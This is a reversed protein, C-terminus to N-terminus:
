NICSFLLILNRFFFFSKKLFLHERVLFFFFYIVIILSVINDKDELKILSFFFILRSLYPLLNINKCKLIGIKSLMLFRLSYKYTFFLDFESMIILGYM